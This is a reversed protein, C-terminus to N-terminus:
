GGSLRGSRAGVEVVTFLPLPASGGELAGTGQRAQRRIPIPGRWPPAMNSCPAKGGSHSGFFASSLTERKAAAGHEQRSREPPNVETAKSPVPVTGFSQPTVLKLDVKRAWARSGTHLLQQPSCAPCGARDAPSQSRGARGTHIWWRRSSWHPRSHPPGVWHSLHAKSALVQRYRNKRWRWLQCTEHAVVSCRALRVLYERLPFHGGTM